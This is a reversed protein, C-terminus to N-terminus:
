WFVRLFGRSHGLSHGRSVWGIWYCGQLWSLSISTFLDLLCSEPLAPATWNGEDVILNPKYYEVVIKNPPRLHSPQQYSRILKFYQIELKSRALFGRNPKSSRLNCIPRIYIFKHENDHRHRGRRWEVCAIKLIGIGFSRKGLESFSPGHRLRMKKRIDLKLHLRAM